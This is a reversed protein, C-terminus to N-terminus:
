GHHTEESTSCAGQWALEWNDVVKEGLARTGLLGEFRTACREFARVASTIPL